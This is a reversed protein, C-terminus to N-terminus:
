GNQLLPSTQQRCYSKYTNASTMPIILWKIKQNSYKINNIKLKHIHKKRLNVTM